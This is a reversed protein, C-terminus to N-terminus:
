RNARSGKERTDRLRGVRKLEKSTLPRRKEPAAHVEGGLPHAPATTHDRQAIVLCTPQATGRPWPLYAIEIETTDMTPLPNIFAMAGTATRLFFTTEVYAGSM